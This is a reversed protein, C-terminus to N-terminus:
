RVKYVAGDEAVDVPKGFTAEAQARHVEPDSGPWLHTLVLRSSGTECAMVGAQQASLHLVDGVEEDTAFTAECLTLDFDRGLEATSWGSGTDATYVIRASSVTDEVAIGLTEVYHDTRSFALELGGIRVTQGDSIVSWDFTPELGDCVDTALARTEATGYVPLGETGSGYKLAVRLGAVDTWHDPHSHSLVVADIDDYAIHRQLNAFTGAGMDMVVNVGGGRILYGSCARSALPYGGSCGLVTLSFGEDATGTESTM